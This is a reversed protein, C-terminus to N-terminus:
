ISKRIMVNFLALRQEELQYVICPFFFVHTALCKRRVVKNWVTGRQNTIRQTSRALDNLMEKRCLIRVSLESYFLSWRARTGHVREAICGLYHKNPTVKLPAQVNNKSFVNGAYLLSEYCICIENM